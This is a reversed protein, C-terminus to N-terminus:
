SAAAVRGRHRPHQRRRQRPQPGARRDHLHGRDPGLRHALEARSSGADTRRTSAGTSPLTPGAASPVSVTSAPRPGTPSGRSARDEARHALDAGSPAPAAIFSATMLASTGAWTSSASVTAYPSACPTSRSASASTSDPVGSPASAPAAARRGARRSGSRARARPWPGPAPRRAPRRGPSRRGCAGASASAAPGPRGVSASPRDGLERGRRGCAVGGTVAPPRHRDVRRRDRGRVAEVRVGHPDASM